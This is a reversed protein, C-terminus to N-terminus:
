CYIWKGLVSACFAWFLYSEHQLVAQWLLEQTPPTYLNTKITLMLLWSGSLWGQEWDSIHCTFLHWASGSHLMCIKPIFSVRPMYHPLIRNGGLILALSKDRM